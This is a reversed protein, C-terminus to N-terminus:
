RGGHCATAPVDPSAVPPSILSGQVTDCAMDRLAALQTTREVGEATTRIGVTRLTHILGRVIAAARPDTDIRDIFSKAIKARTLPLALLTALSSRATGYDDLAVGLGADILQELQAAAGPLDLIATGETIEIELLEAPIGHLDLAGMIDTDLTGAALQVPSVNVAIKLPTGADAWSRAQACARDIVWAGIRLIEGTHEAVPIFEAPPV